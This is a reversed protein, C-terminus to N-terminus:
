GLGVESTQLGATKPHVLMKEQTEDGGEGTKKQRPVGNKGQSKNDRAPVCHIREQVKQRRKKLRVPREIEGV